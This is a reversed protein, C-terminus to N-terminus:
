RKRGLFWREAGRRRETSQQPEFGEDLVFHRGLTERLDPETVLFPPGGKGANEPRMPYVLGLWMGGEALVGAMAAAYAPRLHIPIACFCTYEYVLDISGALEPLLGLLDRCLVRAEVRNLALLSRLEACATPSIDVGTVDCGAAALARVDHGRGCGPVLVRPRKPLGLTALFGRDLLAQLPPTVGRLDWGTDNARYLSDWDKAASTM